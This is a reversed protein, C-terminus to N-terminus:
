TRSAAQREKELDLKTGGREMGVQQSRTGKGIRYQKELLVYGSIHADLYPHVILMPPGGHYRNTAFGYHLAVTWDLIGEIHGTIYAEIYLLYIRESDDNM